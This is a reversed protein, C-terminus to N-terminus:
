FGQRNTQNHIMTGLFNEIMDNYEKYTIPKSCVASAGKETCTKVLHQDAYSSYVMVPIHTYRKNSKLLELTQLGNKRPMNQDLIIFDPLDKADRINDLTELLAVGNEAAPMLLLDSRHHLFDHFLQKDDEDDEALLLKKPFM